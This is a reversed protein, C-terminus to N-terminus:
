RHRDAEFLMPSSLVPTCRPLTVGLAWLLAVVGGKRGSRLPRPPSAGKRPTKFFESLPVELAAARRDVVDKVTPNKAGNGIGLSAARQEPIIGGVSESIIEGATGLYHRGGNRSSKARPDPAEAPRSLDAGEAKRLLSRIGASLVVM